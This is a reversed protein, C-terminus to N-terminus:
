IYSLKIMIIISQLANTDSTWKSCQLGRRGNVCMYSTAVSNSAVLAVDDVVGAM